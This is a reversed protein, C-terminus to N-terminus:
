FPWIPYNQQNLHIRQNWNYTFPHIVIFIQFACHHRLSMMWMGEGRRDSAVIVNSQRWLSRPPTEFWRRGTFEGCLLGTVRFSNGNSSTIMYLKHYRQVTVQSGSTSVICPNRKKTHTKNTQVAVGTQSGSLASYFRWLLWGGNNRACLRSPYVKKMKPRIAADFLDGTQLVSDRIRSPFHTM